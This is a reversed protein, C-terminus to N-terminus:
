AQGDELNPPRKTADGATRLGSVLFYNDHGPVIIDALGALTDMTRSAQVPDKSNFYGRRDRWFDRTMVADGAIVVAQGQCDFRLSHHGPTHGPTHIAEIPGLWRGTVPEIPQEHRGSQAIAEAVEPAAYWRARKFHRLGAHHDGHEHTVFVATIDDLHLGTRRHLEDAMRDPAAFAPDVLLRFGQGSVVTCTCLAPRVAKEESEGWYRNRSLNGICIIDWRVIM